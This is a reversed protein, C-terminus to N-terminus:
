RRVELGMELARWEAVNNTAAGVPACLRGVEPLAASPADPAPPQGPGAELYLVAGCGGAGGGGAVHNGRSAGDFELRYTAAPDLLSSSTAPATADDDGSEDGGGGAAPTATKKASTPSARRAKKAPPPPPAASSPGGAGGGGAVDEEEEEGAWPPAPRSAAAPPPPGRPPGGGGGSAGMGGGVFAAAEARSAFGKFVARPFGHVQARASPWCTYIGPSRGVRVAYFSKKPPM